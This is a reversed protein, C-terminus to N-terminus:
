VYPEFFEPGQRAWMCESIVFGYREYLSHADRTALLRLRTNCAPHNMTCEMIWKGLGQGRYAPDVFVDCIWAFTITDSVIRTFGIQRQGDFLSLLISNEIALEVVKRPRGAAWYTTDLSATIYDIDARSADDTILLNDKRWEM